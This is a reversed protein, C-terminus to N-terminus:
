PHARNSSILYNLLYVVYVLNDKHMFIYRTQTQKNVDIENDNRRMQESAANESREISTAGSM